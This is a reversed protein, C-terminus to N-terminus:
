RTEEDILAAYGPRSVPRAVGRRAAIVERVLDWDVWEAVGRGHVLMEAEERASWRARGYVDRHVELYIEDATVALLVPEHITHGAGGASVRPFLWAIDDPHMRICGHTVAGYISSPANTGHIGVGPVSLGLWFRGLPNDPGPPVKAPLSRGAHRAEEQISAPVDWTPNEEKMVITFPGLPTPWSPRGVAVPLGVPLTGDTTFLMRQPINVIIAGPSLGEPVVHRNDIRLTRGVPLAASPALGSEAALTAVDVGFRAGLSRLGDGPMTTYAIVGGVVRDFDALPRASAGLVTAAALALPVTLAARM